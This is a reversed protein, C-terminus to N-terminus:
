YPIEEGQKVGPAALGPPLASMDAKLQDDEPREAPTDQQDRPSRVLHLKDCHIVTRSKRQGEKDTWSDTRLNGQIAVPHGKRLFRCAVDVHREWLRVRHWETREEWGSETRISRNTALRLDCVMKGNPTERPEPNHGLHGMLFVQNIGRM